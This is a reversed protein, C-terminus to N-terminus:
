MRYYKYDVIRYPISTPELARANVWTRPHGNWAVRARDDKIEIIKGVRGVYSGSDISRVVELGIKLDQPKM